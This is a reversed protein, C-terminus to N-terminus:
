EGAIGYARLSTDADQPSVLTGASRNELKVLRLVKYTFGSSYKRGTQRVTENEEAEEAYIVSAM